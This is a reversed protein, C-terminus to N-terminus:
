TTPHKERLITLIQAVLKKSERLDRVDKHEDRSIKFRLERVRERQEALLTTLEAEPKERLEKPIM